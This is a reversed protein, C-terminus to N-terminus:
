QCSALWISLQHSGIKELKEKNALPISLDDALSATAAAVKEVRLIHIMPHPSRNVYNGAHDAAEGEFAFEPHFVVSQLQEDLGTDELLANYVSQLELLHIFSGGIPFIVFGDSVAQDAVMQQSLAWLDAVMTRHTKATSVSYAISGAGFGVHAFPCLTLRIVFDSIWRQTDRIITHETKNAM